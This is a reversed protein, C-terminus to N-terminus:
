IVVVRFTEIKGDDFCIELIYMGSKLSISIKPSEASIKQTNILIGTVTWIKLTGNQLINNIHLMGQSTIIQPVDHINPLPAPCLPCTFISYDEGIRTLELTYCATFDLNGNKIYLYSGTENEIKQGDKYWQYSSFRYGGNYNENLVALVDNWNQEFITNAYQVFFQIDFSQSICNSLSDSFIVRCNHYGARANQPMQVQVEGNSGFEGRQNEFGTENEFIIEYNTPVSINQENSPPFKLIFSGDNACIRSPIEPPLVQPRPLVTLYFTITACRHHIIYKGSVATASFTTDYVTVPLREVCIKLSDDFERPRVLLDLTVISDCGNRATLTDIYIGTDNLSDTGFYYWECKYSTDKYEYRRVPLKTLTLKTITDCTILSPVTDYYVGGETLIRGKFNYTHNECFSDSINKHVVGLYPSEYAGIDIVCVTRINSDLDFQETPSTITNNPFISNWQNVFYDDNGGNVASTTERLHFYNNAYDVFISTPSASICNILINVPNDNQYICNYLTAPVSWIDTSDIYYSYNGAIISNYINLTSNTGNIGGSYYGWSKTITSNIINCNTNHILIAGSDDHYGEVYGNNYFLSNFINLDINHTWIASGRNEDFTCNIINVKRQEGQPIYTNTSNFAAGRGGGNNHFICNRLTVIAIANLIVANDIREFISNDIEVWKSNNNIYIGCFYNYYFYSNKIKLTDAASRIASGLDANSETLANTVKINDIIVTINAGLNLIRHDHNGDITGNNVGIFVINRNVVIEASTVINGDIFVTDAIGAVAVALAADNNVTINTANALAAFILFLAFFYKKM